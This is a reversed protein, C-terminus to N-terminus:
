PGDRRVVTVLDEHDPAALRSVAIRYLRRSPRSVTVRYLGIDTGGLRLDLESRQLLSHAALLRQEDALEAERAILGASAVLQGRVLGTMALTATGLIAVAALVELLSLGREGSPM